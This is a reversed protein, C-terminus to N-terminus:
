YNGGNMSGIEYRRMRWYNNDFDEQSMGPAAPAAPAPQQNAMLQQAIAARRGAVDYKGGQALVRLANPDITGKPDLFSANKPMSGGYPVQFTEASAPQAPNPMRLEDVMGPTLPHNEANWRAVAQEAPQYGHIYAPAFLGQMAGVADYNRAIDSNAIDFAEPAPPIDVPADAM